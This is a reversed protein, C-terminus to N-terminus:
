NNLLQEMDSDVMMHVLHMLSTKPTWNLNKKAKGINGVLHVPESPRYLDPNVVVFEQYDLGLYEFAIRCFERVTTIQGSSIIYDEAIEQQLMLYMAEVYDGAFGWDRFTDLNGLYLKKEIGLKIKVATNTIKRTVFNMGRLPSEHNYLIASCAFLQYQERYIKIMSDGYFKAAGYPSRPKPFTQETQPSETALGFIERSSAQCFKVSPNIERIAELIKAVAIGNIDGIGIPDIFMGEGSSYAALNYFEIPDISLIIEKIDNQNRMDWELYKVGQLKFDNNIARGLNRVIGTVKYGKSLLQNTLYFGDQGTIGNIVARKVM